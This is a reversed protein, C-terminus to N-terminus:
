QKRIFEGYELLVSAVLHAFFLFAFGYSDVYVCGWISAVCLYPLLRLFFPYKRM